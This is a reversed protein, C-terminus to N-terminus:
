NIKKHVLLNKEILEAVPRGTITTTHFRFRSFAKAGPNQPKGGAQPLACM